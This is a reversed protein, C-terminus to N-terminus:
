AGIAIELALSGSAATPLSALTGAVGLLDALTTVLENRANAWPNDPDRPREGLAAGTAKFRARASPFIGHHGGTIIALREAAAHTLSLQSVLLAPLQAATVKGHGPDGVRLVDFALDTGELWPPPSRRDKSGKAQFVPTAKGLDHVGALFAVWRRTNEHDLEFASALHSRSRDALCDRWVAEAVAAVDLMHCILPHTQFSGDSRSTFKAAIRAVPDKM